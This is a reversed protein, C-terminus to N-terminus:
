LSKIVFEVRRNVLRGNETSNSSKPKLSGFGNYTLRSQDVGNSILFDMVSKAREKSLAINEAADGRNDTHGHIAIKMNNKLNLFVVLEDLIDM